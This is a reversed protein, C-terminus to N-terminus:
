RGSSKEHANDAMAKGAKKTSYKEDPMGKYIKYAVFCVCVTFLFVLVETAVLPLYGKQYLGAPFDVLAHCGVAIFFLHFKGVTHVAYFVLVSLAIQMSFAMIREVAGFACEPISLAKITDLVGQMTEREADSGLSSLLEGERGSNIILLYMYNQLMGFGYLLMMEIGGHGIGYTVASERDRRRAMMYRFAIFRGTEEFIGAILGGYLAYCIPYRNIFSSIKTGSHLFFMNPVTELVLAFVVFVFAGTFVPAISKKTRVRWIAAVFVPIAFSLIALQIVISSVTM